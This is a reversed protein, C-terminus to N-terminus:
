TWFKNFNPGNVPPCSALPRCHDDASFGSGDFGSDSRNYFDVGMAASGPAGLLRQTLVAQMAQRRLFDLTLRAINLGLESPGSIVKTTHHCGAWSRLMSRLKGCGMYTSQEAPYLWVDSVTRWTNIIGVGVMSTFSYVLFIGIRKASTM